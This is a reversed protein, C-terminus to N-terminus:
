PPISHANNLSQFPHFAFILVYVYLCRCMDEAKVVLYPFAHLNVLVESEPFLLSSENYITFLDRCTYLPWNKKQGGSPTNYKQIRSRIFWSDYPM